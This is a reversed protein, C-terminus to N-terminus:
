GEGLSPAAQVHAAMPLTVSFITGGGPKAAVVIDGSHARVIDRSISLGIGLGNEKSTIFPQFLREAVEPAIGSGTDAVHVVAMGTPISRETTVTIERRSLGELADVANRLLNVLVQEVQVHDAHISGANPDLVLLIHVGSAGGSTRVLEVAEQVLMNIDETGRRTARNAVFDRVRRIVQGTRLVQRRMKDVVLRATAHDVRGSELMQALTESYNTLATIPQQLEHSLAAAVEGMATLRGLRALEAGLETLRERSAREETVDRAIKSAGVIEGAANRIPSVTLAVTILRGDKRRRTTEYHRIREGNSIKHLIAAEEDQLDAPIIRLISQGIM